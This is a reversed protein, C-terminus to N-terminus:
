KGVPPGAPAPPDGPNALPPAGPPGGPKQGEGSAGEPRGVVVQGRQIMTEKYYVTPRFTQTVTERTIGPAPEYSIVELELGAEFRAGTHDMIEVGSQKLFDWIAELHRFPRRVEDLPENTGPKLMKERLRFLETCLGKLLKVVDMQESDSAPPQLLKGLGAQMEPPWIAPGIRFPEPFKMQSLDDLIGM